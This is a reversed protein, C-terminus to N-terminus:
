SRTPRLLAADPELDVVGVTARHELPEDRCGVDDDGVDALVREGLEADGYSSMRASLGSMTYTVRGANPDSPGYRM